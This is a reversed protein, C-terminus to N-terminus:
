GFHLFYTQRTPWPEPTLQQKWRFEEYIPGTMTAPKGSQEWAYQLNMILWEDEYNKDAAKRTQYPDIPFSRGSLEYLNKVDDFDCGFAEATIRM